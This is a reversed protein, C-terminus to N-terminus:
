PLILKNEVVELRPELERLWKNMRRLRKDPTNWRGSAHRIRADALLDKNDVSCNWREDLLYVGHEDFQEDTPQRIPTTPWSPNWGVIAMYASQEMWQQNAYEGEHKQPWEWMEILLPLMGYTIAIVGTNPVHYDDVTQNVIGHTAGADHMADWPIDEDNRMVIVDSDLLLVQKYGKKFEEFVVPIKNWSDGRDPPSPLNPYVNVDYGWKQAFEIFTPTALELFPTYEASAIAVICRNNVITEEAFV